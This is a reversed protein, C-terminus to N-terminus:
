QELDLEEEIDSDESGHIPKDEGSDESNPPASCAQRYKAWEKIHEESYAEKLLSDVKM